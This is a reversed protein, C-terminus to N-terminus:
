RAQWIQILILFNSNWLPTPCQDENATINKMTVVQFQSSRCAHGQIKTTSGHGPPTNTPSFCSIFQEVQRQCLRISCPGWIPAPLCPQDFSGLIIAMSSGEGRRGSQQTLNLSWPWKSATSDWERHDSSVAKQLRRTQVRFTLCPHWLVWTSCCM